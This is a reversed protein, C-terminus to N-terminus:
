IIAALRDCVARASQKRRLRGRRASRRAMSNPFSPRSWGNPDMREAELRTLRAAVGLSLDDSCSEGVTPCKAPERM